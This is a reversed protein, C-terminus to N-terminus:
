GCKEVVTPREGEVVGQRGGPNGIRERCTRVDVVRRWNPKGLQRGDLLLRDSDGESEDGRVRVQSEALHTGGVVRRDADGLPASQPRLRGIRPEISYYVAVRVKAAVGDDRVHGAEHEAGVVKEGDRVLEAM